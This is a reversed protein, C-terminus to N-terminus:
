NKKLRKEVFIAIKAVSDFNIPDFDDMTIQIKYNKELFSILKLHAVSDLAGSTLLLTDPTINKKGFLLKSVLYDRIDNQIQELNM